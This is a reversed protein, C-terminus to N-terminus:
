RGKPRSILKIDGTAGSECSHLYREPNETVISKKYRKIKKGCHQCQLIYCNEIPVELFKSENESTKAKINTGYIENYTNVYRQWVKGHGNGIAGICAHLVEHALTEKIGEESSNLMYKSIKIYAIKRGVVRCTGYTNKMSGITIKPCIEITEIGIDHVKEIIESLWQNLTEVKIM